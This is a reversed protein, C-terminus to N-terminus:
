AERTMPGRLVFVLRRDVGVIFVVVFFLRTPMTPHWALYLVWSVVVPGTAPHDRAVARVPPVPPSPAVLVVRAV